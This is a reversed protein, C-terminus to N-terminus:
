PEQPTVDQVTITGDVELDGNFNTQDITITGTGVFKITNSGSLKLTGNITKGNLEIYYYDDMNESGADMDGLLMLYRHEPIFDSIKYNTGIYRLDSKTMMIGNSSIRCPGTVKTADGNVTAEAYNWIKGSSMTVTGFAYNVPLLINSGNGNVTINGMTKSNEGGTGFLTVMSEPLTINWDGSSKIIVKAPASTGPGSQYDKYVVNVADSSSNTVKLTLTETNNEAFVKPVYITNDQLNSADLNVVYNGANIAELVPNNGPLVPDETNAPENHEDDFAPTITVQFNGPDTLLSGYINTRYNQQVRASPVGLEPVDTDNVKLKANDLITQTTADAEGSASPSVLFYVSALYHYTNGSITVTGNDATVTYDSAATGTENKTVTFPAKSVKFTAEESGNVKKTFPNYSTAANKITVKTSLGSSVINDVIKGAAAAKIDDESTLFNLQAFPRRLKVSHTFSGTATVSLTEVFADRTEDNCKADDYSVKIAGGGQITYPSGESTQHDAFFLFHYKQGRLLNFSLNATATGNFSQDKSFDTIEEGVEGSGNDYYVRVHLTNILNANGITYAGATKTQMGNEVGVNFSVLAENDNSLEDENSCAPSLLLGIAAIAAYLLKKM